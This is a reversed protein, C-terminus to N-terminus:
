VLDHLFGTMHVVASFGDFIGHLISKFCFGLTSSYMLCHLLHLRRCQRCQRGCSLSAKEGPGCGLWRPLVSFLWVPPSRWFTDGPGADVVGNTSAQHFWLLPLHLADHVPRTWDGFLLYFGKQAQHVVSLKYWMISSTAPPEKEHESESDAAWDCSTSRPPLGPM